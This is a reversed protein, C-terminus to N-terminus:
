AKFISTLKDMTLLVIIAEGSPTRNPDTSAFLQDILTHIEVFSLKVAYRVSFRRALSRSLSEPKNLKLDSYSQKLQEILEEFLDQESEEPLDAPIGRIILENSGFEDFEFGLSRIEKKTENVLQMDSHTLRITKPFLLQQCAGNRNTLMKRYREYLIREYAAKQDILMIGDKVQSLIYRNHLQFLVADSEPASIVESAMRNIKSAITKPQEQFSPRSVTSANTEFAALERNRDETNQLGEFLKNWNTLNSRSQGSEGKKSQAAWDPMVTRPILNHNQDSSTPNLFNINDDFDISQSLNYVGVAKKVAAMVIAYVSKEDDFKIETKTPHINIDIHSPDIEIFLVYFPHSGEPITGDFASIVAHHMYSHKVYRDNVFFFQEGRTKRAFEPKGIYGRVSIYSTDEQCFALQERYSKGYIDVIRKVLKGSQLNFVETDNHHLTFAVQPHALAVRQFEDLVHRMEVSNSKLFNRRAPVNFFLNKVSLNTGKLCAVAEQAKIESGDIRIMTGLEDFEQRTRLEVQAIAAISALAEGRFGMTRIRFLDESQRIKSTAHREFSMRADTESMGSGDDIIQILTRGAEKLIVQVHSAKADIANEMLEKVVSAPRQVVEGAAIQNAISDPLLQIIDSSPM